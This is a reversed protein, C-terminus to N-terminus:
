SSEEETPEAGAQLWGHAVARPQSAVTSQLEWRHWGVTLDGTESATLTFDVLVGNGGDTLTFGTTKELAGARFVTASFDSAEGTTTVNIRIDEARNQYVHLTQELNHSM